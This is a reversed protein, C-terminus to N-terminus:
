STRRSWFSNLLPHPAPGSSTSRLPILLALILLALLCYNWGFLFFMTPAVFLVGVINRAFVQNGSVAGIRSDMVMAIPLILLVM